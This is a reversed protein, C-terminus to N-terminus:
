EWIDCYLFWVLVALIKLLINCIKIKVTFIELICASKESTDYTIMVIEVYDM